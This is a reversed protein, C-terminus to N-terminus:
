VAVYREVIRNYPNVQLLELKNVAEQKRALLAQLEQRAKSGAEAQSQAAAAPLLAMHYQLQLHGSAVM